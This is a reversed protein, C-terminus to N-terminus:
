KFGRPRKKRVEVGNIHTNQSYRRVWKFGRDSLVQKEWTEVIRKFACEAPIRHILRFHEDVERLGLVWAQAAREVPRKLVIGIECDRM